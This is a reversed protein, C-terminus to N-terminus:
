GKKAEDIIQQNQAIKDEVMRLQKEASKVKRIANKYHKEINPHAMKFKELDIFMNKIRECKTALAQKMLIVCQDDGVLDPPEEGVYLVNWNSYYDKKYKLMIEYM